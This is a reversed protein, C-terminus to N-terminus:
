ICVYTHMCPRGWGLFGTQIGVQKELGVHLYMYMTVLRCIGMKCTLDEQFCLAISSLVGLWDPVQVADLEGFCSCSLAPWLLSIEVLPTAAFLTTTSKLQCDHLLVWQASCAGCQSMLLYCAELSSRFFYLYRVVYYLKIFSKTESDASLYRWTLKWFSLWLLGLFELPAKESSDSRSGSSGFEQLHPQWLNWFHQVGQLSERTQACTTDYRKQYKQVADTPEGTRVWALLM